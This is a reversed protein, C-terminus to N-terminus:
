PHIRQKAIDVCVMRTADRVLLRGAVLAMPGWADVADMIKVSSLEDFGATSARAITLTGQDDLLYVKGDALLYPGLGFRRHPGSSWLVEGPSDPHMCVFQGRLAGADKPLVMFLHERYYLPTQQESSPGEKVGITDLPIIAFSDSESTVRFLMSGAGYGATM